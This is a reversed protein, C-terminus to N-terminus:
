PIEEWNLPIDVRIDTGTEERCIVLEVSEQGKEVKAALSHYTVAASSFRGGGYGDITMYKLLDSKSSLPNKPYGVVFIQATYSGDWCQYLETLYVRIVHKGSPTPIRLDMEESWILDANVNSGYGSAAPNWRATIVDRVTWWYDAIRVLMLAAIVICLARMVYGCWLWFSSLKEDYQRGVTEADGMAQISHIRAQDPDWGLEILAEAHSEMHDFLEESLSEKENETAKKMFSCVRNCYAQYAASAEGVADCDLVGCNHNERTLDECRINESVREM